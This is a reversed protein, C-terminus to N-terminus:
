RLIFPNAIGEALNIWVSKTQLYEDIAAQGSERGIGSMKYGGFPAMFSVARYTNVWVTGARIKDAMTFARRINSTWVGSALGYITDNAIEVAEEDDDFPIISLIPGFVEERAIRMTNSVDGFITPQVFWGKALAPDDPTGGGLLCRAGENRAVDMYDLIKKRQPLTTVPGVQTTADMPNGMRASSAFAVVKSSVEEYVSRQVLLRSGAICTQGSAAFIGSIAGKVADDINADAFVINPSKGGLELTVHKINKAAGAYVQAGTADGGTFAIKAVMPHEVLTAGIESGYGTVTNVVGEPFGAEQILEMLALTSCSTFESPKIVITNGAALAPALKWTLLLLPSNWPTIAVVVGLPERKTYTFLDPKDIPLVGGEIKDALGGFYYFWEPIYRLQGHMEAFLKGNDRTEITALREADRAILDGLRRLLKGRNTASMTAWPGKVFAKHAAEIAAVADDANCQPVEAWAEGTYPDVSPIWRGTAGEGSKGNVTNKFRVLEAM